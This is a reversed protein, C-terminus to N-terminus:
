RRRGGHKKRSGSKTYEKKNRSASGSNKKKNKAKKEHFAGKSQSLNPGKLYNKEVIISPKEDESFVASVELDEPLDVFPIARGMLQEIAMQMPLEMENIFSIAVGSKDARGTRGIRHMYDGPMDPMDFNVIHSVDSIDMGRAVVDTAILLKSKGEMFNTIANMRTNHAKNSHIVSTIEAINTSLEDKLRDAQKKSKVFVMVKTMSEDNSFLMELMNVKTHFNPIHYATQQIKEIPTGHAAIEIIHPKFIAQKIFNEAEESMTASFMISQRKEPLMGLLNNIQTRFGLSFMEDVEDYVVQKIKKLSLIGTYALDLLRGPTAILIDAGDYIAQKQKKMNGGGFVALARLNTYKCLKETETLIQIALEHTPAIILARPERQESFKMLRIIPLLYAFTKGTGTQAIGVVNKGAMIPAFAERQIPTVYVIDLEEIARLLPSNINLEDFTM